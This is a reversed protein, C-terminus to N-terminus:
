AKVKQLLSEFGYPARMPRTLMAGAAADGVIQEAKPDWRIPRGTRVAIDSLHSITDSRVACEIPCLTPKRSRICDLFNRDHGKSVLLHEDTSKLKIKLLEPRSAELGRRDVSIWGDKGFFTTGHDSWRKRYKMVVPKAPVHSMFHLKAGCAYKLHADWNIVTTFLGGSPVKGTGVCEVPGTDDANLGWQVIDLPHSGWGGLFGISYDYTHFSGERHVRYHNYPKMPAPGVWLDYDLDEPVPEEVLSNPEMWAKARTGDVCWADVREIEGLYGNRVIEAAYRFAGSSRQQTGYQFVRKKAVIERRLAKGWELSPGLPKEVYMDKGSRAAAFALPIHWHDCSCCVVADIDERAMVDRFSAYAKVSGTGYKKELTARAKERRSRFPDCTAVFQADGYRMFGGMVGSGRSGVGIMGLQLRENPAAAGFLGRPAIAPLALAGAAIASTRLFDRRGLRSTSHTNNMTWDNHAFSFAIFRM